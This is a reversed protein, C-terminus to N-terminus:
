YGGIVRTAGYPLKSTQRYMVLPPGGEMKNVASVSEVLANLIM